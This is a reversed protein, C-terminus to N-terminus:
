ALAGEDLARVRLRGSRQPEVRFRSGGTDRALQDLVPPFEEDALFVTHVRVGLDRALRREARVWPDGVVPVGDTVLLLHRGHGPRRRFAELALRLPAEYSTRGEARACGARALLDAYRRHFLRGDVRFPEAEHHFEVYAVRMRRRACVRVMGAVVEGAFRSLPGEMSASVDRLLALAGGLVRRERRLVAPSDPWGGEVFLAAEVPDADLLEDLRSLRSRRRPVGGPESTAEVRLRDLRGALADVLRQVDAGPLAAGPFPRLPPPTGQAPLAPAPAARAGGATGAEAADGARALQQPAEEQAAGSAAAEIWTEAERRLPEPIRAAIMLRAVRLDERGVACAGRLFAHARLVALGPAALLRDGVLGQDGALAALRSWLREWAARVAPRVPLGACRQQAARRAAGDLPPPVRGEGPAVSLVRRAKEWAGSWVLGQMRVQLAFRDLQSPEPPDAVADSEPPLLTAAACELPLEGAPGRRESLLRLLPGLAEGPARGLDDLVAVEVALLGGQAVGLSIRESAGRRSRLLMPDGLLEEPRTDRHFHLLRFRAGSARAFAAALASKGCGPPGVLLVHQRAVLGLALARAAEEQGPAAAALAAALPALPEASM